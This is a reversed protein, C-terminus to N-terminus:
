WSLDQRQNEDDPMVQTAPNPYTADSDGVDIADGRPDAWPPGRIPAAWRARSPEGLHDLIRM